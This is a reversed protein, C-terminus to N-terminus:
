QQAQTVGITSAPARHQHATRRSVAACRWIHPSAICSARSAMRWECHAIRLESIRSPLRTTIPLTQAACHALCSARHALSTHSACHAACPAKTRSASVRSTNIRLASARHVVRVRPAHSASSSASISSARSRHVIGACSAPTRHALAIVRTAPHASACLLVRPHARAVCWTGSATHLAYHM